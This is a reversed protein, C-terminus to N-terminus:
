RRGYIRGGRHRIHKSKEGSSYFGPTTNYQLWHVLFNDPKDRKSFFLIVSLLTPVGFTAYPGLVTKGFILNLISALLAVFVLDQMEMGLLRPKRELNRHVISTKLSEM